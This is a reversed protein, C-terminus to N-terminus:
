EEGGASETEPAEAGASGVDASEAEASDADASEEQGYHEAIVRAMERAEEDTVQHQILTVPGIQISLCFSEWEDIWVIRTNM